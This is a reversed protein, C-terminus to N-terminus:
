NLFICFVIKKFSVQKPVTRTEAKITICLSILSLIVVITYPILWGGMSDNTIYMFLSYFLLILGCIYNKKTNPTM